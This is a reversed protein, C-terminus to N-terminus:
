SGHALTSLAPDTADHDLPAARVSSIWQSSRHGVVHRGILDGVEDAGLRLRDAVPAVDAGAGLAESDAAADQVGALVDVGEDALLSLLGFRFPGRGAATGGSRGVVRGEQAGAPRLP